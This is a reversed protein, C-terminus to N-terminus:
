DVYDFNQLLFEYLTSLDWIRRGLAQSNVKITRFVFAQKVHVTTKYEYLASRQVIPLVVPTADFM